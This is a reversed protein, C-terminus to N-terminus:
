VLRLLQFTGIFSSVGRLLQMCYTGWLCYMSYVGRVHCQWTAHLRCSPARCGELREELLVDLVEPQTVSARLVELRQVHLVERVHRGHLVDVPVVPEVASTLPSVGTSALLSSLSDYSALKSGEPSLIRYKHLLSTHADTLKGRLSKIM